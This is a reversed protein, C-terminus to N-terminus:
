TRNMHESIIAVPGVQLQSLCSCEMMPSSPTLWAKFGVCALPLANDVLVSDLVGTDGGADGGGGGYCYIHQEVVIM